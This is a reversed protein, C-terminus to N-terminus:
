NNKVNNMIKSKKFYLIEPAYEIASFLLILHLMKTQDEGRGIGSFPFLVV